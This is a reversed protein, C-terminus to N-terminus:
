TALIVRIKVLSLLNSYSYKPATSKDQPLRAMAGIESHDDDRTSRLELM